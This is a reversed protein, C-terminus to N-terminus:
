IEADAIASNNFWGFGASVTLRRINAGNAEANSVSSTTGFVASQAIAATTVSPVGRKVQRFPCWVGVDAANPAEGHWMVQPIQEYYRQCLAQELLLHRSSFADDELRADGEVLSVHAIDFTGSQQGLSNTKANFNAGAEFWFVAAVWDNNSTGITKGAVSPMVFSYSFKQWATTLNFKQVAISGLAPSPSGGSGFAQIFEVAMQRAADAKAYFTFTVIKGALTEVREIRQSKACFNGAGAVSTVVTRSFFRPNGPVDTQGLAFQQRSHTKTSGAHDNFWRDDSGYGSITQSTARQWFEFDGNILKNRFAGLPGGNLNAAQLGNDARAAKSLVEAALSM